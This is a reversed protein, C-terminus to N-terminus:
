VEVNVKGLPVARQQGGQRLVVEVSAALDFGNLMRQPVDFEADGVVGGELNSSRACREGSSAVLRQGTEVVQLWWSGPSPWPDLCADYWSLASSTYHFTLTLDGYGPLLVHAHTPLTSALVLRSFFLLSLPLLRMTTPPPLPPPITRSCHAFRSPLSLHM